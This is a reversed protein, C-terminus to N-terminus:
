ASRNELMSGCQPPSVMKSFDALREPPLRGPQRLSQRADRRRAYEEHREEDAFPIEALLDNWPRQAQATLFRASEVPQLPTACLGKEIAFGDASVLTHGCHQQGAGALDDLLETIGPLPAVRELHIATFRELYHQRAEQWRTGFQEPFSNALSRHSREKVEALTWPEQGMRVFTHELADHITGWSDVLTNDWDFLIAKPPSSRLRQAPESTM